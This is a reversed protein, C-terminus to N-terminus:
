RPLELNIGLFLYKIELLFDINVLPLNNKDLRIIHKKMFLFLTHIRNYQDRHFLSQKILRALITSENLYLYSVTCLLLVKKHLMCTRRFM